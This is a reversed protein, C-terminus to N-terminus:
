RFDRKLESILLQLANPAPPPPAADVVLTLNGNCVSTNADQVNVNISFRGPAAAVGTIVGDAVSLGAPLGKVTWTYPQAGSTAALAYGCPVGAVCTPTQPTTIRMPDRLWAGTSIQAYAQAACCLLLIVLLMRSM